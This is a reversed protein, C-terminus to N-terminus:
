TPPHLPSKPLNARPWKYKGGKQRIILLKPRQSGNSSPQVHSKAALNPM